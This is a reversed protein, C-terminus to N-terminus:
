HSLLVPVTMHNLIFRTLSGLVLDRLRSRGYAGMVILDCAHDAAQNLFTSGIDIEENLIHRAEVTVGHRALHRAIDAGPEDGLGAAGPRPNVALVTVKKATELMPRADGIARAAERSANWGILVRKGVTPFTGAFPVVLVPRGSDFLLDEPHVVPNEAGHHPDVQGVIVLDAYRAHVAAVDTPNGDATRWESRDTLGARRAREDFLAHAHDVLDLAYRRQQTRVSEPLGVEVYGPLTVPATIHLGTLHADHRQALWVALDVRAAAYPGDDVIVLIDKLAM